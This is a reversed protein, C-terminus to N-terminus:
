YRLTLPLPLARMPRSPPAVRMIPQGVYLLRSASDLLAGSATLFDMGIIGDVPRGSSDRFHKRVTSLDTVAVQFDSVVLKRFTVNTLTALSIPAHDGSADIINTRTPITPIGHRRVAHKALVTVEAGTDVIWTLRQGNWRSELILHPLRGAQALPLAEFGLGPVLGLPKIEGGQANPASKGPLWLVGSAVDILSALGKLADLGMQGDYRSTATHRGSAPALMFAFPSANVEGATLIGIGVQSTVPRGLAGRSIVQLNKDPRIGARLALNLELDTSNAGSDILFRVPQGNVHFRGSYRNDRSSKQLKLPKYGLQRLTALRTPSSAPPAPAACSAILFACIPLFLLPLPSRM